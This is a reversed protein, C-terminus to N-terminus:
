KEIHEYMLSRWTEAIKNWIIRMSYCENVRKQANLGCQMAYQPDDLMKLIADRLQIVNRPAVCIGHNFGNKIDLIEPIAGVNTTVIPCGCAMSELIVNPFGETYTPLVFVSCKMMAELIEEYPREGCIEVWSSDNNKAALLELEKKVNPLVAGMIKLKVGPIDRCAAVLEFVGKTKIVHGAFLLSREFRVCEDKHLKVYTTVNPALPNPIYKVNKYGASILTDYSTQDIVIIVDAFHLVRVLLWWEWNKKIYLDPIRGFRFHIITKIGRRRGVYLLYLDKVLGWSASTAIHMIDFCREKKLIRHLEKFIRLYDKIGWWLRYYFMSDRGILVSRGMPLISMNIDTSGLTKYYSVFHDAWRSIGGVVGGYPTCLLVKYKM